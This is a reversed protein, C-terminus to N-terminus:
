EGPRYAKRVYLAAALKRVSKSAAFWSGPFTPTL